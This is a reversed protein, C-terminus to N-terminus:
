SGFVEAAFRTCDAWSEKDASEVYNPGQVTFAHTSANFSYVTVRASSAKLEALLSGYQELTSAPDHAAHYVRGWGSVQGEGVKRLGAHFSAFATFDMKARSMELVASGGFCYGMVLSKPVGSGAQAKAAELGALLRARFLAPDGYYKSSEQGAAQGTPRVGKGYVDIAVGVAGWQAAVMDARMKEYDDLGNWDHVIMVVGKPTGAPKSVYGQCVVDGAKYDFDEGKAAYPSMMALLALQIM